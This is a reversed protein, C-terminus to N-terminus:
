EGTKDGESKEPEEGTIGSQDIPKVARKALWFTLVLALPASGLVFLLTLLPRTGFIKDLWLGGFVAALVIIVTLCGVEGGITLAQSGIAAYPIKNKEPSQDTQSV